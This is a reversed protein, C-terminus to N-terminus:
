KPNRTPSPQRLEVVAIDKLHSIVSLNYARTSVRARGKPNIRLVHSRAGIFRIGYSPAKHPRSLLGIEKM